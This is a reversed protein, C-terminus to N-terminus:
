FFAEKGEFTGIFGASFSFTNGAIIKLDTGNYELMTAKCKQYAWVKENSPQKYAQYISRWGSGQYRMFAEFMRKSRYYYAIRPHVTYGEYIM